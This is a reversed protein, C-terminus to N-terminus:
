LDTTVRPKTPVEFRIIKQYVVFTVKFQSIKTQWFFTNHM